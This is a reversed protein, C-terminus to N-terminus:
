LQVAEKGEDLDANYPRWAPKARHNHGCAPCDIHLVRPYERSEDEVRVVQRSCGFFGVRRKTKDVNGRNVTGSLDM